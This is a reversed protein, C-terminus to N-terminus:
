LQSVYKVYSKFDVHDRCIIEKLYLVRNSFSDGWFNRVKDILIWDYDKKFHNFVNEYRKFLIQLHTQSLSTKQFLGELFIRYIQESTIMPIVTEADAKQGLKETFAEFVEM